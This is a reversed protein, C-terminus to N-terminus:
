AHVHHPDHYPVRATELSAILTDYDGARADGTVLLEADACRDVARAADAYSIPSPAVLVGNRYLGGADLRLDCHEPAGGPSGGGVGGGWGLGLLVYLVVGVGVGTTVAHVPSRDRYHYYTASGGLLAVLARSGVDM